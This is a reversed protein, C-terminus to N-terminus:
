FLVLRFVHLKFCRQDGCQTGSQKRQRLEPVERYIKWLLFYELFVTVFNWAAVLLAAAGHSTRTLVQGTLIPTIVMTVLSIRRMTASVALVCRQWTIHMNLINCKMFLILHTM